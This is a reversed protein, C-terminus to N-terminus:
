LLILAFLAISFSCCIVLFLFCLPTLVSLALPHLQITSFFLLLFLTSFLQSLLTSYKAMPQLTAVANMMMKLM